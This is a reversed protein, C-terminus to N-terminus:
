RGSWLLLWLCWATSITLACHRGKDEEEKNNKIKSVWVAERVCMDMHIHCRFLTPFYLFTKANTLLIKFMYLTDWFVCKWFAAPAVTCQSLWWKGAGRTDPSRNKPWKKCLSLLILRGWFKHFFFSFFTCVFSLLESFSFFWILDLPADVLGSRELM